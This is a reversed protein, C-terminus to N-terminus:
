GKGEWDGFSLMLARLTNSADGMEEARFTYTPTEIMGM